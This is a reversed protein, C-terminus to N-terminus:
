LVFQVEINPSLTQCGLWETTMDKLDKFGTPWYCFVGQATTTKVRENGVDFQLNEKRITM